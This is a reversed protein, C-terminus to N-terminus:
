KEEPWHPKYNTVDFYNTHTEGNPMSVSVIDYIKQSHRETHRQVHKNFEEVPPCPNLSMWYKQYLCGEETGLLFQKEEGHIYIASEFTLGDGGEVKLGTKSKHNEPDYFWIDAPVCITDTVLSIPLDVIGLVFCGALKPFGAVDYNSPIFPGAVMEGDLCTAPYYRTM